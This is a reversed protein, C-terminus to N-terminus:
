STRIVYFAVAMDICTSNASITFLLKDGKVFTNSTSHAQETATSSVSNATGGLATTNVKGTLTCTGSQSKTRVKFIRGAFPADWWLVYDQNAVTEVDVTFDIEQVNFNIGTGTILSLSQPTTSNVLWTMYGTAFTTAGAEKMRFKGDFYAPGGALLSGTDVEGVDITSANLRGTLPNYKLWGTSSKPALDGSLASVFIPYFTADTMVDAITITTAVDATGTLDGTLTGQFEWNATITANIHTYLGVQVGGPNGDGIYFVKDNTVWLPQGVAPTVGSRNAELGNWFKFRNKEAM